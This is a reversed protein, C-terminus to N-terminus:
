QEVSDLSLVTRFGLHEQASDISSPMRASVRFSACYSANCLFSGGKIVKEQVRPNGPNYAREAGQPNKIVGHMSLEQYYQVNYWDQTWEWANGALDYLGYSNPPYSKVPSKNEFGDEVTNSSPFDGQWTNAMSSLRAIDKGWTFINKDNGGRAAFEWEAETPLRRGIWKCYQLADELSIHTVPFNEKGEISSGRGHPQRWNAGVKWHWWKSYDYLNLIKNKPKLFILSGPQLVSDPPKPVNPSLHKKIEEWDVKREAVTVYGAENVFEEFQANTVETEDMFFGDVVVAHAPKEHKMALKDSEVAGQVFNGGPVWVMGKPIEVEAPLEKVFDIEKINVLETKNKELFYNQSNAEKKCSLFCSLLFGSFIIYKVSKSKPLCRVRNRPLLIYRDRKLNKFLLPILVNQNM